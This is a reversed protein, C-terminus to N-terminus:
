TPSAQKRWSRKPKKWMASTSIPLNMMGGCVKPIPGRMQTAYGEQVSETLADYDIAYSLAQRVKPNKLAENGKSSNVYVYDVFLSPKQLVEVNPLEKVAKLQENPIGEAIDIEGQELQLRQATADPVIKFYVTQFAPKVTSHPNVTLKLYEGKEM